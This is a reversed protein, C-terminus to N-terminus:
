KGYGALHKPDSSLYSSGEVSGVLSGATATVSRRRAKAVSQLAEQVIASRSSGRARALETLEDELSEPVNSSVTRMPSTM